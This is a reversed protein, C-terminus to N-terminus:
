ARHYKAEHVIAGILDKLSAKAVGVVKDGGGYYVFLEGKIVVAGCPFVVNPVIGNKEYDTKPALIPDRTRYLVIEPNELDLIAARVNYHNTRRSVGHYLLLWGASTEIPPASIGILKSDWATERPQIFIKGRLFKKGDFNLDDLFDIWIDSGGSRHLFVYKGKIKRPFLAADKNGIGPDSILVSKSWKWEKKLFDDLAISVFAVQPKDKGNFATYCMYVNGNM